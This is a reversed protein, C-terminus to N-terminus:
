YTKFKSPNVLVPDTYWLDKFKELLKSTGQQRVTQFDVCEMHNADVHQARERSDELSSSFDSSINHSLLPYLYNQRM